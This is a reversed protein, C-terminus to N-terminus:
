RIVLEAHTRIIPKERVGKMAPFKMRTCHLKVNTQVSASNILVADWYFEGNM